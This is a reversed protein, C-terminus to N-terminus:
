STCRARVPVRTRGGDLDASSVSRILLRVTVEPGRWPYWPSRPKNRITLLRRRSSSYQLAGVQLAIPLEEVRQTEASICCCADRRAGRFLVPASSTTKM